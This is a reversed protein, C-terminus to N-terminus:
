VNMWSRISSTMCRRAKEREREERRRESVRMEKEVKRGTPKAGRGECCGVVWRMDEFSAVKGSAVKGM